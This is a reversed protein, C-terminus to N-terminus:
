YDLIEVYVQKKDDTFQATYSIQTEYVGGDFLVGKFFDQAYNKRMDDPMQPYTLKLSAKCFSTKRDNSNQTIFDDFAVDVVENAYDRLEFLFGLYNKKLGLVSSLYYKYIELIDRTELIDRVELDRLDANLTQEDLGYEVYAWKDDDLISKLTLTVDIDNCKPKMEFCGLFIFGMLFSLLYKKM